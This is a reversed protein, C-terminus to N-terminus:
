EGRADSLLRNFEQEDIVVKIGDDTKESIGLVEIKSLINNITISGIKFKKKVSEFDLINGEMAYHLVDFFKPPFDANKVKYESKQISDLEEKIESFVNRNKVIYHVGSIIALVAGAYYIIQGAYNCFTGIPALILVAVSVDLFVTKVKGFVDAALVVGREVAITRFIGIILERSIVFGSLLSFVLAANPYLSDFVDKATWMILFLMIVVVVKDALPDLFKGLNSVTKTKRAITGDIFDTACLVSFTVCSAILFENRYPLFFALVYLVAAPFILFIRAVTIKTALNM